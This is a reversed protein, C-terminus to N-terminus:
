GGELIEFIKKMEGRNIQFWRASKDIKKEIVLKQYVLFSLAREIESVERNIREKLLWWETIGELTDGSDPNKSLYRLIAHAIELEEKTYTENEVTGRQM